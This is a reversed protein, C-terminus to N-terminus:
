LSFEQLKKIFHQLSTNKSFDLQYKGSLLGKIMKDVIEPESKVNLIKKLKDKHNENVNNTNHIKKDFTLFWSEIENCVVFFYFKDSQNIEYKPRYEDILRLLCTHTQESKYCKTKLDMMLFVAKYEEVDLADNIIKSMRSGNTIDCNGAKGSRICKIHINDK